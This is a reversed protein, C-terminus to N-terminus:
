INVSSSFLIGEPIINDANTFTEHNLLVGCVFRRVISWHPKHLNEEVFLQFSSLDSEIISLAALMEQISQHCFYLRYHGEMLYQGLVTKGPVYAVLDCVSKPLLDFEKLDDVTFLIKGQKMSEFSLARLKEITQIIHERERTHESQLFIELISIMVGSMTSPPNTPNSKYVIAIFVLFLPVSCLLVVSPSRSLLLNWLDDGDPGVLQIFVQRRDEITLGALGIVM